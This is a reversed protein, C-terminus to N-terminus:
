SFIINFEWPYQNKVMAHFRWFPHSVIKHFNRPSAKSQRSSGFTFSFSGPNKELFYTGMSGGGGGWKSKKWGMTYNYTYCCPHTPPIQRFIYFPLIFRKLDFRIEIEINRNRNCAAELSLKMVIICFFYVFHYLLINYM